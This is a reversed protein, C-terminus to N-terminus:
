QGPQSDDQKAPESAEAEIGDATQENRAQDGEGPLKSVIVMSPRITREKLTYGKQLERVVTDPPHSDTNEQAVAAHHDPDFPRGVAEIPALGFQALTQMAKERVLRMGTLLPDDPPASAAATELARDMDDLVVLLSKILSENAFQRAQTIDKQVRKQYNLYDASVRQLRALLDDREARLAEPDPTETAADQRDPMAAEDAEDAPPEKAKDAHKRRGKM